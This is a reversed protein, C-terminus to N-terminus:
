AALLDALDRMVPKVLCPKFYWGSGSTVHTYAPNPSMQARQPFLCIHALLHRRCTCRLHRRCHHLHMPDPDTKPGPDAKADTRARM